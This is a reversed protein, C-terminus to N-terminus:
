SGSKGTFADVSSSAGSPFSRTSSVDFRIHIADMPLCTETSKISAVRRTDQRKPLGLTKPLCPFLFIKYGTWPTTHDWTDEIGKNAIARLFRQTALELYFAL